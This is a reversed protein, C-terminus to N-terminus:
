GRRRLSVRLTRWEVRCRGAAYVSFGTGARCSRVGVLTAVRGSRGGCASVSTGRRRRSGDSDVHDGVAVGGASRVSPELGDLELAAGQARAVHLDLDVVATDTVRVDVEGPIIPPERLVRANGAVLDNAADSRDTRLHLLVLYSVEHTDA